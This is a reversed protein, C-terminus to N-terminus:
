SYKDACENEPRKLNKTKKKKIEVLRQNTKGTDHFHAGRPQSLPSRTPGMVQYNRTRYGTSTLKREPTNEGRVEASVYSLLRHSQFSLQTLVPTLFGPFADAEGVVM